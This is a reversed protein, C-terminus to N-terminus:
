AKGITRELADFQTRAVKLAATALEVRQAEDEVLSASHFAALAAGLSFLPGWPDVPHPKGGVIVFGGGDVKVGFSVFTAVLPHDILAPTDIGM